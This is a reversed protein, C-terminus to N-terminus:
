RGLLRTVTELTPIKYDKIVSGNSDNYGFEELKRDFEHNISKVAKDIRQRKYM